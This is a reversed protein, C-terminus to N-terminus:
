FSDAAPHQLRVEACFLSNKTRVGRGVKNKWAQPLSSSPREQVAKIHMSSKRKLCDGAKCPVSVCVGRSELAM